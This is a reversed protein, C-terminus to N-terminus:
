NINKGHHLVNTSDNVSSGNLTSPNPPLVRKTNKTQIFISDKSGGNKSIEGQELFNIETASSDLAISDFVDIISDHDPLKTNSEPLQKTRSDNSFYLITIIIGTLLVVILWLYNRKFWKSFSKQELPRYLEAVLESKSSALTEEISVIDPDDFNDICESCFDELDMISQTLQSAIEPYNAYVMSIFEFEFQRKIRQFKAIELSKLEILQEDSVNIGKKKLVTLSQKTSKLLDSYFKYIKHINPQIVISLYWNNKDKKREILADLFRGLVFLLVLILSAIITPILRDWLSTNSELFFPFLAM